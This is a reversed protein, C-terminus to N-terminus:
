REPSLLAFVGWTAGAKTANFTTFWQKWEDFTMTKDRTSITQETADTVEMLRVLSKEDRYNVLLLRSGVNERRLSLCLAWLSLFKRKNSAKGGWYRRPHSEEPVVSDCKLLEILTWRIKGEKVECYVSDIDFGRTHQDGLTLLIFNKAADDARAISKSNENIAM